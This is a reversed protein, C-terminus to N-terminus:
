KDEGKIVKDRKQPKIDLAYDIFEQAPQEKLYAIAKELGEIGDDFMGLGNNCRSCLYGRAIGTKHDHDLHRINLVLERCCIACKNNQKELLLKSTEETLGTNLLNRKKDSLHKQYKNEPISYFEQKYDAVKKKNKAYWKRNSKNQRERLDSDDLKLRKINCAQCFGRSHAKRGDGNICLKPQKSYRPLPINSM